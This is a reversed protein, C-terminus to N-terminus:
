RRIGFIINQEFSNEKSGVGECMESAYLPFDTKNDVLFDILENKYATAQKQLDNKLKDISDWQGAAAYQDSSTGVSKNRIDWNFHVCAEIETRLMLFNFIYDDVLEQEKATYTNAAILYNYFTKGLVEKVYIGQVRDMMISLKGADVNGNILSKSKIQAVTILPNM